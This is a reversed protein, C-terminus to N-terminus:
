KNQDLLFLLRNLALGNILKIPSVPVGYNNPYEYDLVIKNDRLWEKFMSYFSIRENYQMLNYALKNSTNVPIKLFSYYASDGSYPAFRHEVFAFYLTDEAFVLVKPNKAAIQSSVGKGIVYTGVPIAGGVRPRIITKTPNIYVIMLDCKTLINPNYAKGYLKHYQFEASSGFVNIMKQEFLPMHGAEKDINTM